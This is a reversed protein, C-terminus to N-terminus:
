SPSTGNDVVLRTRQRVNECRGSQSASGELRSSVVMKGRSIVLKHLQSILRFWYLQRRPHSAMYNPLSANRLFRWEESATLEGFVDTHYRDVLGSPVRRLSFEFRLIGEKRGWQLSNAQSVRSNIMCLRDSNSFHSGRGVWVSRIYWEEHKAFVLILGRAMKNYSSSQRSVLRKFALDSLTPSIQM